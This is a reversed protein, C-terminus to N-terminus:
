ATSARARTAIVSISATFAASRAPLSSTGVRDSGSSSFTGRGNAVAGVARYRPQVVRVPSGQVGAQLRRVHEVLEGDRRPGSCAAQAPVPLPM